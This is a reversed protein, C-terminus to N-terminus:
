IGSSLWAHDLTMNERQLSSAFFWGLVIWFHDQIVKGRTQAVADASQKGREEWLVRLKQASLHDGEVVLSVEDKEPKM